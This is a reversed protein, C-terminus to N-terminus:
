SRVTNPEYLNWYILQYVLFLGMPPLMWLILWPQEKHVLWAFILVLPHLVFLVAHLWNEFADCFETHVWEDKTIFLCSFAATLSYVWFPLAPIFALLSLPLILFITDLPHGWREWRPLTRRWHCYFEDVLIALAQLGAAILFLAILTKEDM